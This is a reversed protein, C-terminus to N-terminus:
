CDDEFTGDPVYFFELEKKDHIPRCGGHQLLVIQTSIQLVDRYNHDSIVFGKRDKYRIILDSIFQKYIPELGSFPEDLLLFDTPQSILLYIELFRLEGGSLQYVKKDLFTQIRVDDLIVQKAATNHVLLQILYSVKGSTPLFSDQPLYGVKGTLYTRKNLKGHLRIYSHQAKITGFIIKLLTSKGCGNRGLLAIVEGIQCKLYVGTLLLDRGPYRFQVSDVYLEKVEDM